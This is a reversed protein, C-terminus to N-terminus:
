GKDFEPPMGGREGDNTLDGRYDDEEEYRVEVTICLRNNVHSYGVVDVSGFQTSLNNLWDDIEDSGTFSKTIFRYEM